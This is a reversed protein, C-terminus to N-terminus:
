HEGHNVAFRPTSIFREMLSPGWSHWLLVWQLLLSDVRAALAGLGGFGFVFVVILRGSLAEL